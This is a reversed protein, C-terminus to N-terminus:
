IDILNKNDCLNGIIELSGRESLGGYLTLQGHKNKIEFAGIDSSWVVKYKKFNGYEGRQVIDGVYIDKKNIDHFGTFQGLTEIDIEVDAISFCGNLDITQRIFHNGNENTWYYGYVWEGTRISKGRSRLANM